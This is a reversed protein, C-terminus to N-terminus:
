PHDDDDGFGEETPLLPRNAKMATQGMYLLALPKASERACAELRQQMAAVKDPYAAALNTKEFPDVALNYLDV